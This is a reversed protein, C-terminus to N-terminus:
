QKEIFTRQTHQASEDFSEPNVMDRKVRETCIRSINSSIRFSLM